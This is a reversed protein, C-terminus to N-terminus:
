ANNDLNKLNKYEANVGRHIYNAILKDLHSKGDLATFKMHWWGGVSTYFDCEYHSRGSKTRM